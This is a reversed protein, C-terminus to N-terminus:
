LPEKEFMTVQPSTQEAEINLLIRDVKAEIVRCSKMLEKAEEYDHTRRTAFYSKQLYRMKEVASLLLLLQYNM